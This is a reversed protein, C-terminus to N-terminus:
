KNIYIESNKEKKMSTINFVCIFLQSKPFLLYITANFNNPIISPHFPPILLLIQKTQYNKTTKSSSKKSSYTHSYFFCCTSLTKIFILFCQDNQIFQELASAFLESGHESSLNPCTQVLKSWNICCRDRRRARRFIRRGRYGM